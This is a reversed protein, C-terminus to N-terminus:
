RNRLDYREDWSAPFIRAVEGAAARLADPQITSWRWSRM